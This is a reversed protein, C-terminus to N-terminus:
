RGFQHAQPRGFAGTEPPFLAAAAAKDTVCMHAQVLEEDPGLEYEYASGAISGNSSGFPSSSGYAQLNAAAAAGPVIGTMCAMTASAKAAAAAKFAERTVPQASKASKHSNAGAAGAHRYVPSASSLVSDDSAGDSSDPEPEGPMNTVHCPGDITCSSGRAYAESDLLVAYSNGGTIHSCIAQPFLSPASLVHLAVTLMTSLSGKSLDASSCLTHKRLGAIRQFHAM